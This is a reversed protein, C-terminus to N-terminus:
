STACVSDSTQDIKWDGDKKVLRVTQKQGAECAAQPVVVQVTAYKGHVGLVTFKLKSFSARQAKTLKGLTRDTKAACQAGGRQALTPGTLLACVDAGSGTAIADLYAQMSDKASPSSSGGCAALSSACIVLALSAALRSMLPTECWWLRRHRPVPQVLSSSPPPSTAGRAVPSPVGSFAMGVEGWSM